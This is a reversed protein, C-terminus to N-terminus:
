SCWEAVRLQRLVFPLSICTWLQRVDNINGTNLMTIMEIVMFGLVMNAAPRLEENAHFFEGFTAKLTTIALCCFSLAAALGLESSIELLTNHPWGSEGAIRTPFGDIGVGGLPHELTLRWGIRALEARGGMLADTSQVNGLQALYNFSAKPIGVSLVMLVCLSGFVLSDFLLQGSGFGVKKWFYVSLSMGLAFGLFPGRSGSGVMAIAMVGILSYLFARTVINRGPLLGFWVIVIGLAADHGLQITDGSPTTLRDYGGLSTLSTASAALGAVLLTLFFRNIRAPSTLIVFPSIICLGNIILFRATKDLGLEFHPTYTLSLLMMVVIPVYFSFEWPLPMMHKKWIGIAVAPILVLLLLVTLDVPVAGLERAGKFSGITMLCAFTVEPFKVLLLACGVALPIALVVLGFYDISLVIGVSAAITLVAIWFSRSAGPMLGYEIQSRVFM